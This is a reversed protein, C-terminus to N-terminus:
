GEANYILRFDLMLREKKCQDEISQLIASCLLTVAHKETAGRIGIARNPTVMQAYYIGGDRTSTTIRVTTGEMQTLTTELTAMATALDM